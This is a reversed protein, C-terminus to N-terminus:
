VHVPRESVIAETYVVKEGDLASQDSYKRYQAQKSEHLYVDYSSHIAQVVVLVVDRQKGSPREAVDAELLLDAHFYWDVLRM